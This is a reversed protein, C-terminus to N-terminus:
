LNALLEYITDVTCSRECVESQVKAEFNSADLSSCTTNWNCDLSASSKTSTDLISTIRPGESFSGPPNSHAVRGFGVADVINPHSQMQVGRLKQQIAQVSSNVTNLVSLLNGLM